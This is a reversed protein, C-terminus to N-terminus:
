RGPLILGSPSSRPEPAAGIPTAPGSATGLLEGSIPSRGEAARSLQELFTEPNVAGVLRAHPGIITTPVAQLRLAQAMRPFEDVEIVAIQLHQNELGLAFVLSLMPPCFPSIPSVFLRIQVDDRIRQISKKLGRDLDTSGRSAAVVADVFPPFLAAGPFGDFRLSRNLQGRFITAPVRDVDLRAAISASDSLEHVRLGIKPSLSRLEELTQRTETCFRCEERGAVMISLPRQTFHEIKVGGTLNEAFYGRIRDQEQLPIM